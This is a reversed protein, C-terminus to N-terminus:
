LCRVPCLPRQRWAQLEEECLRRIQEEQEQGLSALMPLLRELREELWKSAM